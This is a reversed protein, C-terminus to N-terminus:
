TQFIHAYQPSQLCYQTSSIQPRCRGGKASPNYTAPFPHPLPVRQKKRPVARTPPLSIPTEQTTRASTKSLHHSGQPHEWM